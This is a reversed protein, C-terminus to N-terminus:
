RSQRSPSVARPRRPGENSLYSAPSLPMFAGAGELERSLIVAKATPVKTTPVKTASIKNHFKSPLVRDCFILSQYAPTVGNRRFSPVIFVNWIGRLGLGHATNM